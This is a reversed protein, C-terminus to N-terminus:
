DQLNELKNEKLDKLSIQQLNRENENNILVM